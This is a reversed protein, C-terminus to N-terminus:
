AKRIAIFLAGDQASADIQIPFDYANQFIGDLNESGVAAGVGDGVAVGRGVAAGVGVGAGVWAGM